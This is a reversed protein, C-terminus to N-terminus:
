KRGGATNGFAVEPSVRPVTELQSGPTANVLKINRAALAESAVGMCRALADMDPMHFLRDESYKESFHTPSTTISRSMLAVDRRMDGSVVRMTQTTEAADKKLGYNHDMGLIIIESFGMIAAAQCMVYVVTKGTHLVDEDFSFEPLGNQMSFNHNFIGTTEPQLGLALLHGAPIFKVVPWDELAESFKDAYLEMQIRDSIFWYDIQKKVAEEALYIQNAGFVTKGELWVPTIKALSPGNALIVATEGDHRNKFDYLSRQVNLTVGDRIMDREIFKKPKLGFGYQLEEPAISPLVFRHDNIAIRDALRVISQTRYGATVLRTLDHYVREVAIIEKEENMPAAFVLDHEGWLIAVKLDREATQRPPLQDVCVVEYDPFYTSILEHRISARSGIIIKPADALIDAVKLNSRGTKLLNRHVRSFAGLVRRVNQFAPHRLKTLGSLLISDAEPEYAFLQDPSSIYIADFEFM